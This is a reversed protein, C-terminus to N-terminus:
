VRSNTPLTLHTYSVTCLWIMAFFTVKLTKVFPLLDQKFLAKFGILFGIFPFAFSAIGYWVKLFRHATYAGFKGLWNKIDVEEGNFISGFSVGDIVSYDFKWTFLYSIFSLCLYLSILVLLLGSTKQFREDEVFATIKSFRNKKKKTTNFQFNKYQNKAGM